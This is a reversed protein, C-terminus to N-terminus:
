KTGKRGLFGNRHMAAPLPLCDTSVKVDSDVVFSGCVDCIGNLKCNYGFTCLMVIVIV